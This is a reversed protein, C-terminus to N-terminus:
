MSVVAGGSGGAAVQVRLNGGPNTVSVGVSGGSAAWGTKPLPDTDAFAWTIPVFFGADEDQDKLPYHEHVFRLDNAVDDPPLAAAVLNEELTPAVSFFDMSPNLSVWSGPAGLFTWSEDGQGELASAAKFPVGDRVCLATDNVPANPWAQDWLRVMARDKYEFSYWPNIVGDWNAKCTIWGSGGTAAASAIGSAPVDRGCYVLDTLRAEPTGAGGSHQFSIAATMGSVYSDGTFCEGALRAMSYAGANEDGTVWVGAHQRRECDLEDPHLIYLPGRIPVETIQDAIRVDIWAQGFVASVAQVAGWTDVHPGDTWSGIGNTYHLTTQLWTTPGAPFIDSYGYIWEITWQAAGFTLTLTLTMQDGGPAVMGPVFEVSGSFAPQSLIANTDCSPM